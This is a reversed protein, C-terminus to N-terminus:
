YNEAWEKFYLYSALSKWPKTTIGRSDVLHIIKVNEKLNDSGASINKAKLLNIFRLNEKEYPVCYAAPCNFSIDLEKLKIRNKYVLYATIDEDLGGRELDKVAEYAKIIDTDTINYKNLKDTLLIVGGNCASIKKNGKDLLNKFNEQPNWGIVKRWAMEENIEFVSSIDDNILIDTDLFLVNNYNRVLHFGFLKAITYIGMRWEKVKKDELINKYSDPFKIERFIIFDHLKELLERDALPLQKNSFIVVDSCKLVNESHKKLSMLVNAVTFAFNDSIVFFHM